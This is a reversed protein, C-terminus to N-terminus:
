DFSYRLKDDALIAYAVRARERGKGRIRWAGHEHVLTMQSRERWWQNVEKPLAIWVKGAKRLDSLYGLLNKYVALAREKRVYDPHVIFSALGHKETIM